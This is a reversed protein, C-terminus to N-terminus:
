RRFSGRPQSWADPRPASLPVIGLPHDTGFRESLSASLMIDQATIGIFSAVQELEATTFPYAGSMRGYITPKSLGLVAVLDIPKKNARALEARVAGAVAEDFNMAQVISGGFRTQM